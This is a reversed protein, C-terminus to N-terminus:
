NKYLLLLILIASFVATRIIFRRLHDSGFFEGDKKTFSFNYQEVPKAEETPPVNNEQTEIVPINNINDEM